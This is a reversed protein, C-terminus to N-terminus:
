LLEGLNLMLGLILMMLFLLLQFFANLKMLKLFADNSYYRVVWLGVFPPTMLFAILMSQNAILLASSRDEIPPQSTSSSSLTVGAAWAFPFWLCLLRLVLLSDRNRGWYAAILLCLLMISALFLLISAVHNWAGEGSLRLIIVGAIPGLCALTYCALRRFFGTERVDNALHTEM